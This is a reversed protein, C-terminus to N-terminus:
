RQKREVTHRRSVPPIILYPPQPTTERLTHRPKLQLAFRNGAKDHAASLGALCPVKTWHGAVRDLHFM